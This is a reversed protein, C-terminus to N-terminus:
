KQKTGKEIKGLTQRRNKQEGQEQQADQKHNGGGSKEGKRRGITEEAEESYKKEAIGNRSERRAV